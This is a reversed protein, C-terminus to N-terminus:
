AFSVSNDYSIKAMVLFLFYKYAELTNYKRMKKKKDLSNSQTSKQSLQKRKTFRRHALWSLRDLAQANATEWSEYKVRKNILSNEQESCSNSLQDDEEILKRKRVNTSDNQTLCSFFKGSSNSSQISEQTKISSKESPNSSFLDKSHHLDNKIINKKMQTNEVLFREHLPKKIIMKFVPLGLCYPYINKNREM